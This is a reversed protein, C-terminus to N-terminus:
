FHMFFWLIETQPQPCTSDSMWHSCYQPLRISSFHSLPPEPYIHPSIWPKWKWLLFCAATAKRPTFNHHQHFHQFVSVKVCDRIHLETCEIKWLQLSFSKVWCAPLKASPLKRDAEGRIQKQPQSSPLCSLLSSRRELHARKGPQLRILINSLSASSPLRKRKVHLSPPM